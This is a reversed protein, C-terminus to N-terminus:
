TEAQVAQRKMTGLLRNAQDEDRCLTLVSNCCVVDPVLRQKELGELLELAWPWQEQCAKISASSGVTSAGHRRLLALARPWEQGRDCASLAANVEVAGGRLLRLGHAWRGRCAALGAARVFSDAQLGLLDVAAVAELAQAWRQLRGCASIARTCDELPHRAM